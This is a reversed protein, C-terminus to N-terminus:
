FIPIQQVFSMETTRNTVPHPRAKISISPEALKRIGYGIGQLSGKCYFFCHKLYAGSLTPIYLDIQFRKPNNRQEEISPPSWGVIKNNEITVVGGMMKDFVHINLHNVSLSFDAGLITDDEEHMGIVGIGDAKDITREGQEILMQIPIDTVGYIKIPTSTPTDDDSLPLLTVLRVGRLIQNLEISTTM